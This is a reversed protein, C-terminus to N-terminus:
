PGAWLRVRLLLRAPDHFATRAHMTRHNDILILDGPRQVIRTPRLLGTLCHELLAAARCQAPPLGAVLNDARWRITGDGPLVATPFQMPPPGYVEPARWRWVPRSLADLAVGGDPHRGLAAITSSETALLTDGGHAAPTVVFLCVFDEPRNHYQSDTHFGAGGARMSFTGRGRRTRPSVRWVTRGGDRDSPIGFCSAIRRVADEDYAYTPGTDANETRAHAASTFPLDRLLAWGRRALDARAREVPLDSLSQSPM